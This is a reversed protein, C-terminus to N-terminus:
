FWLSGPMLRGRGSRSSYSLHRRDGNEIGNGQRDVKIKDDKDEDAIRLRQQVPDTGCKDQAEREPTKLVNEV